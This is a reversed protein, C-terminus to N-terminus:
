RAAHKQDKYDKDVNFFLLIQLECFKKNEM